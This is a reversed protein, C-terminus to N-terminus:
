SQDSAIITWYKCQEKVDIHAAHICNHRENIDIVCGDPEMGEELDCHCGYAKGTERKSLVSRGFEADKRLKECEAKLEMIFSHLEQNQEDRIESGRKWKKCEVQLAEYDSLRVLAADNLEAPCDTLICPANNHRSELKHLATSPAWYTTPKNTTM